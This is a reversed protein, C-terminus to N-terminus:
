SAPLADAAEISPSGAEEWAKKEALWLNAYDATQWDEYWPGGRTYHIAKPTGEAPKPMSGELWNWSDPIGGIGEDPMWQLRHLFAGTGENAAEVTLARVREDTGDFIMLSSWNKRPYSTQKRGDMKTEETPRHDHKVCHVAKGTELGELLEKVDALWLFDNDCFMSLGAYGNLAPTLFRSYTFETSALPDVDRWYLKADVLHDLRLARIRLPISARRQMSFACIDAVHPNPRDSGVYVDLQFEM